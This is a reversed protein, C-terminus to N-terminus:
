DQPPSTSRLRFTPTPITPSVRPDEHRPWTRLRWSKLSSTFCEDSELGRAVEFSKWTTQGLGKYPIGLEQAAAEVFPGPSKKVEDHFPSIPSM